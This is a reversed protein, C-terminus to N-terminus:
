YKETTYFRFIFKWKWWTQHATRVPSKKTSFFIGDSVEDGALFSVSKSMLQSINYLPVNLPYRWRNIFSFKWSSQSMNRYRYHWIHKLWQYPCLFIESFSWFQQQTTNRFHNSSVNTFSSLSFEMFKGASLGLPQQSRAICIIISKAHRVPM